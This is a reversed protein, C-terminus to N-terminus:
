YVDDFSMINKIKYHTIHHLCRKDCENCTGRQYMGRWSPFRMFAKLRTGALTVICWGLM